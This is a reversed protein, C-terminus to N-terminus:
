PISPPPVQVPHPVIRIQKIGIEGPVMRKFEFDLEFSTKAPYYAEYARTATNLQDVLIRYDGEWPMVTEGDPVLSSFEDVTLALDAAHTNTFTASVSEPRKAPDPNTVSEAGLQTVIRSSAQRVAGTKDIALTAVGNAMENSDPASYHALIAMGVVAEDVGYRLRELFANENYFSAYVKRMARFVGREKPEWPDCQSPGASDADLDDELCGSFSDYLGAGNFTDGDEVNTSSRFRIKEGAFGAQQLATVIQTRQTANFDAQDTILTQVATLNTRLSAVDPPYAYAGLRADIQQRM